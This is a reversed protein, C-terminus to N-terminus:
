VKLLKYVSKAEGINWKLKSWYVFTNFISNLILRIYINEISYDWNVSEFTESFNM